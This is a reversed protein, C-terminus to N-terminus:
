KGHLLQCFNQTKRALLEKHRNKFRLRLSRGALRDPETLGSCGVGKYRTRSM